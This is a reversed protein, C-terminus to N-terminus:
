ANKSRKVIWESIVRDAVNNAKIQQEESLEHWAQKTIHEPAKFMLCCASQGLWAQRNCGSNSLNVESSIIWEKTIRSMTQYLEKENSLLKVSNKIIEEPNKAHSNYLGNKADEWDNYHHYIRKM